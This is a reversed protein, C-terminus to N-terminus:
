HLCGQVVAHSEGKHNVEVRGQDVAQHARRVGLGDAPLDERLRKVNFIGIRAVGKELLDVVTDVGVLGRVSLLRLHDEKLVM